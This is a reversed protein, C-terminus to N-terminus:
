EIRQNKNLKTKNKRLLRSEYFKGKFVYRTIHGCNLCTVTLYSGYNKRHTSRVRSTSGPVLLRKCGHCIRRKQEQPIRVKAAMAIERAHKVYRDALEKKQPHVEWAMEMLEMARKKAAKKM